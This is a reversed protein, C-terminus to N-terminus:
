SNALNILTMSPDKNFDEMIENYKPYAEIFLEKNRQAFYDKVNEFHNGQNIWELMEKFNSYRYGPNAYMEKLFKTFMFRKCDDFKVTALLDILDIINALYGGSYYAGVILAIDEDFSKLENNYRSPNVFRAFVQNDKLFPNLYDPSNYLNEVIRKVDCPTNCITNLKTQIDRDGILEVLEKFFEINHTNNRERYLKNCFTFLTKYFSTSYYGGYSHDTDNVYKKEVLYDYMYCALGYVRHNRLGTEDIINRIDYHCYLIDSTDTQDHRKLTTEPQDNKDLRIFTKTRKITDGILEYKENYSYQEHFDKNGCVPCEHIIEYATYGCSCLSRSMRDKYHYGKIEPFDSWNIITSYKKIQAM